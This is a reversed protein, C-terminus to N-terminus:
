RNVAPPTWNQLFQVLLRVGVGSAGKPTCPRDKKTWATGAIDIHAWPTDPSSFKKLFCGATITGAARGGSNKVDAIDSKILEDYASALPLQWLPEGAVEGARMLGDLLEQSTGMVASIENGLAVVCAGTLTALDVVADPRYRGALTLADALILRGEADTSIIEITRGSMSRVVDGPKLAHGSPLNETAPVIGVVRVGLQLRSCAALTALVAAGGAMDMKMEEMSAAPKLSIGGSDFTIAKGVLAITSVKQKRPPVYELVICRCPEDSGRAVSLFADMGLTAVHTKTYVTCRLGHQRALRRATAALYRPTATNAPQQVLDRALCVSESVAAARGSEREVVGRDAPCDCVITVRSINKRRNRETKCADFRYLGLLVGEVLARVQEPLGLGENPCLVAPVSFRGIGLERIHQSAGACADRLRGPTLEAPKGLGLLLVRKVRLGSAPYLLLREAHKGSFDGQHMVASIMGGSLRDVEAPMGGLPVGAPVGLVLVEDQVAGADKVAVLIDM